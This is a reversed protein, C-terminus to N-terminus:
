AFCRSAHERLPPSCVGEWMIDLGPGVAVCYHGAEEKLRNITADSGACFQHTLASFQHLLVARFKVIVEGRLRATIMHHGCFQLFSLLLEGLHSGLACFATHTQFVDGSFSVGSGPAHGVMHVFKAWHQMHKSCCGFADIGLTHNIPSNHCSNTHVQVCTQMVAQTKKQKKKQMRNRCTTDHQLYKPPMGSPGTVQTAGHNGEPLVM